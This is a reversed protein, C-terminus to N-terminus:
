SAKPASDISAGESQEDKEKLRKLLEDRHASVEELQAELACIRHIKFGLFLAARQEASLM